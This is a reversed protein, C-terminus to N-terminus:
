GQERVGGRERASAPSARESGGRQEDQGLEPVEGALSPKALHGAGRDVREADAPTKTHISSRPTVWM